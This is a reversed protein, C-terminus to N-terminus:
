RASAPSARTFASGRLERGPQHLRRHLGEVAVYGCWVINKEDEKAKKDSGVRGKTRGRTLTGRRTVTVTRNQTRAIHTQCVLQLQPRLESHPSREFGREWAHSNSRDDGSKFNRMAVNVQHRNVM